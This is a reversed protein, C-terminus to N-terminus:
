HIWDDQDGQPVDSKGGEIVEFRLLEKEINAAKKKLARRRGGPGWVHWWGYAGLWVGLSEATMMSPSLLFFAIALALTGYLILTGSVPFVFWINMTGDPMALGFLVVLTIVLVPWGMVAGSTFWVVDLLMALATGGLAACATAQLVQKRTYFQHIGPILFYLVVLGIVVSFVSYQGQVLYRTVPQYAAFGADFSKWELLGVPQGANRLVLEIVYMGFLVALLRKMWQDLVPMQFQPEAYNRDMGLSSVVPPRAPMPERDIAIAGKVAIGRGRVTRTNM